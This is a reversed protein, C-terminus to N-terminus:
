KCVDASAIEDAVRKLESKIMKSNSINKKYKMSHELSAWSDQSITRLQIEIPINIGEIETELIIHYSRYGNEKPNKIYDKTIIHLFGEMNEIVSATTYVDELFRCIIRFGVIDTLNIVASELTAEFGLNELKTKTSEEAKIRVKIHEFNDKYNFSILDYVKDKAQTFKNYYGKYFDWQVNNLQM